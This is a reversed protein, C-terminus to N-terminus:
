FWPIRLVKRQDDFYHFCSHVNGVIHSVNYCASLIHDDENQVNQVRYEALHTLSVVIV